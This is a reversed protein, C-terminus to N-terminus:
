KLSLQFDYCCSATSEGGLAGPVRLDSSALFLSDIAVKKMMAGELSWAEQPWQWPPPADVGTAAGLM